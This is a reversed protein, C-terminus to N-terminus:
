SARHWGAPFVPADGRVADRCWAAVADGVDEPTMASNDVVTMAWEPGPRRHIWREWRMEEWGDTTVAAPVHGPNVAHERMWASFGLHLHRLEPPDQREDLRASLTTDDADLLCIAVDAGDASPAALVEGAAIPDGAVLLHRGERALDRARRVAVEVQQQRWRITPADPIPGLHWLEVPEFTDDLLRTAHVRASSKGVCSAGTVLLLM